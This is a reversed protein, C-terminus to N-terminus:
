ATQLICYWAARELVGKYIPITHKLQVTETHILGQRVSMICAVSPMNDITIVMTCQCKMM